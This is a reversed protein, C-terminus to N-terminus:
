DYGHLVFQISKRGRGSITKTRGYGLDELEQFLQDVESAKKCGSVNNKQTDRRKAVGGHRRIWEVAEEIRKDAPSKGLQQYAKRIHSKFYKIFQIARNLSIEDVEGDAAEDCVVRTMHIILAIRALQNPMKAWPGRLRRPFDPDKMERIHISQWEEWWQKAENSSYLVKPKLESDKLEPKLNYLRDFVEAYAAKTGPSIGPWTWEAPEQADPYALLVRHIFGDEKGEEDELTPLVDPPINGTVALFPKPIFLPEGDDRVRNVKIDSGSWMSLYHERDDGKGGKYQNMSRIWGSLEDVKLILGRNNHKLARLLAELT